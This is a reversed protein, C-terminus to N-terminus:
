AAYTVMSAWITCATLKVKPPTLVSGKKVRVSELEFWGKYESNITEAFHLTTFVKIELLSGAPLVARELGDTSIKDKIWEM